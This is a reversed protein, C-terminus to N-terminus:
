CTPWRADLLEGDGAGDPRQVVVLATRGPRLLAGDLAVAQEVVSLGRFTEIM